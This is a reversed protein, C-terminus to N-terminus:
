LLLKDSVFRLLPHGSCHLARSGLNRAHIEENTKENFGYITENRAIVAKDYMNHALLREILQAVEPIEEYKVAPVVPADGGRHLALISELTADYGFTLSERKRAKTYMDYKSQAAQKQEHASFLAESIFGNPDTRRSLDVIAFTRQKVETGDDLTKLRRKVQIRMAGIEKTETRDPERDLSVVKLGYPEVDRVDAGVLDSAEDLMSELHEERRGGIITLNGYEVAAIGLKRRVFDTQRMPSKGDEFAHRARWLQRDFLKDGWGNLRTEYIVSNTGRREYSRTLINNFVYDAVEPSLGNACEIDLLSRYMAMVEAQHAENKKSRVVPAPEYPSYSEDRGTIPEFVGTGTIPGTYASNTESSLSFNEQARPNM